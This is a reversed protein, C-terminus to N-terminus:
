YTDRGAANPTLGNSFQAYHRGRPEKNDGPFLEKRMLDRLALMDALSRNTVKKDAYEVTLAGGSISEDLAALQELTFAM